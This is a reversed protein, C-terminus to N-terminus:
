GNDRGGCNNWRTASNVSSNSFHMTSNQQELRMEFNLLHVYVDNVNIVDSRTTISTVPPNYDSDFGALLYSVFEEEELPRRAVAMTDVLAKMKAFYETAMIDKKQTNTLQMRIQM